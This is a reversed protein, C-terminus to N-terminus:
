GVLLYIWGWATFDLTVALGNDTVLFYEDKFLRGAGPVRAPGRPHGHPGRRLRDVRGVALRAPLPQHRAARHPTTWTAATM